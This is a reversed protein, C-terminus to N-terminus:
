LHEMDIHPGWIERFISVYRAIGNGNLVFEDDIQLAIPIVGLEEFFRYLNLFLTKNESQLASELMQLPSILHLTKTQEAYIIADLLQDTNTLLALVEAHCEMRKLMEIGMKYNNSDSTTSTLLSALNMSDPIISFQILQHLQTYARSEFLVYVLTDYFYSNIAHGLAKQCEVFELIYYSM